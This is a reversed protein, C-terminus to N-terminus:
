EKIEKEVFEMRIIKEGEIRYIGKQTAILVQGDRELMSVIVKDPDPEGFLYKTGKREENLLVHRKDIGARCRSLLRRETISLKKKGKLIKIGFVIEDSWACCHPCLVYPMEKEFAEIAKDDLILTLINGGQRAFVEKLQLLKKQINNM